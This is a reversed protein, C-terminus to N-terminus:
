CFGAPPSVSLFPAAAVTAVLAVTRTKSFPLGGESGSTQMRVVEHTGDKGGTADGDASKEVDGGEADMAAVVDERKLGDDMTHSSM